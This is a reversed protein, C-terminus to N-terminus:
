RKIHKLFSVVVRNMQDMEVIGRETVYTVTYSVSMEMM